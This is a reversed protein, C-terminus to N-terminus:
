PVPFLARLLAGLGRGPCAQRLRGDGAAAGSGPRPASRRGSGGSVRSPAAPSSEAAADGSLTSLAARRPPVALLGSVLGLRVSVPQGARVGRGARGKGHPLAARGPQGLGNGSGADYGPDGEQAAHPAAGHLGM